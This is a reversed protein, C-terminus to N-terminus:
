ANMKLQDILFQNGAILAVFKYPNHLSFCFVYCDCGFQGGFLSENLLADDVLIVMILLLLFTTEEALIYGTFVRNQWVILILKFINQEFLILSM